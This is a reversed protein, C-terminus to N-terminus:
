GGNTGHGDRDFVDPCTRAMGACLCSHRHWKEGSACVKVEVGFREDIPAVICANKAPAQLTQAKTIIQPRISCGIDARQWTADRLFFGM